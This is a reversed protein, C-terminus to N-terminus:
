AVGATDIQKGLAYLVQAMAKRQQRPCRLLEHMALTLMDDSAPRETEPTGIITAVSVGLVRALRQAEETSVERHGREIRSISTSPIEARRALQDQTMNMADRYHRIREGIGM